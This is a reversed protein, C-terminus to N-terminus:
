ERQAPTFDKMYKISLALLLLQNSIYSWKSIYNEVQLEVTQATVRIKQM